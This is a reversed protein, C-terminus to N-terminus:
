KFRDIKFSSDVADALDWDVIRLNLDYVGDGNGPIATFSIFALLSFALLVVKFV